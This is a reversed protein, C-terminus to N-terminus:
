SPRLRTYPGPMRGEAFVVIFAVAIPKLRRMAGGVVFIRLRRRSVPLRAVADGSNSRIGAQKKLYRIEAIRRQM